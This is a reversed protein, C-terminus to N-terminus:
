DNPLTVNYNQAFKQKGQVKAIANLKKGKSQEAAIMDNRHLEDTGKFKSMAEMDTIPIANYDAQTLPKPLGENALNVPTQVCRNVGAPFELQTPMVTGGRRLILREDRTM